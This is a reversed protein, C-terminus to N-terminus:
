DALICGSKECDHGEAEQEGRAILSEIRDQGFNLLGLVGSLDETPHYRHVQLKRYPRNSAAQRRIVHGASKIFSRTQTDDSTSAGAIGVDLAALGDNIRGIQEIDRNINMAFQITLMRDFTDLTNRFRALPIERVDPDMYIMHIIDAEAEIAPMTPTNMVLGGDCYTRGSISVPPFFGPLATSALIVDHGMDDNLQDQDFVAAEGSEWDTTVIKVRMRSQRLRELPIAERIVRQLPETSVFSSLDVMEMARHELPEGSQLMGIGRKIWDRTLFMSDEGFQTLLELPHRAMHEPHKWALAPPRFRYVGNGGQGSHDAIRDVWLRELNEVARVPKEYLAMCAANFAGVSTGTAIDIPLPTHNTAPSRGNILAKLVGVEFAGLAGGGSLIIANKPHKKGPGDESPRTPEVRGEEDTRSDSIWDLSDAVAGPPSQGLPDKGLRSKKV